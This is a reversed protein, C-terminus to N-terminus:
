FISVVRFTGRISIVYRLQSLKEYLSTLSFATQRNVLTVCITVVACVSKYYQTYLGVLSGQDCALFLAFVPDTQSVQCKSLDFDGASFHAHIPM